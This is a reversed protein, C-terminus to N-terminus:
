IWGEKKYWQYTERAGDIFKIESEFGFDQRAKEISMEWSALLEKAKEVTLMPTIGFPRSISQILHPMLKFLASPIYVPIASKGIAVQLNTILEKMTYADKDAIFYIEGSKTESITAMFIGRCLDDVHVLQLKRSCNGLYPKIRNNVTQFFSLIETDGPGYVGPPRISLVSIRDAYSLSQKEGALKSHGYTTLPNPEDSESVPNNNASPGAAALSSIYIFKKVSPNHEITAKLLNETGIENIDFFTKKNNAKVVGANHIIYDVGTVMDPLSNPNTMDGYRLQVTLDSLRNLDASRRVGAYVIFGENIFKRCLRAGVFGNAGTILISPRKETM